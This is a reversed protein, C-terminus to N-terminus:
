KIIYFISEETTDLNVTDWGIKNYDYNSTAGTYTVIDNITTTDNVFITGTWSDEAVTGINPVIEFGIWEFNQFGTTESYAYGHLEKYSECYYVFVNSNYDFDIFWSSESYAYGWLKYGYWTSCKGTSAVIRVNESTDSSWDLRFFGLMSDYYWGTFYNGIVTSNNWKNMYKAVSTGTWTEILSDNSWVADAVDDPLVQSLFDDAFVIGFVAIFSLAFLIKLKRWVIKIVKKKKKNKKM